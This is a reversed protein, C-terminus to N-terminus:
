SGVLRALLEQGPNAAGELGAAPASLFRALEQQVFPKLEGQAPLRAAVAAQRDEPLSGYLKRATSEPLQCLVASVVTAPEEALREFLLGADCSFSQRPPEADAISNAKSEVPESPAEPENSTASARQLWSQYESVIDVLESHSVDAAAAIMRELRERQELGLRGLVQEREGPALHKLLIAAKRLEDM